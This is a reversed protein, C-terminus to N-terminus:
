TLDGEIYKRQLIRTSDEKCRKRSHGKAEKIQFM